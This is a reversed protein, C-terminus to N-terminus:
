STEGASRAIIDVSIESQSVTNSFPGFCRKLSFRTIKGIDKAILVFHARKIERARQLLNEKGPLLHGMMPPPDNSNM